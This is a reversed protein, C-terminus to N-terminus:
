PPLDTPVVRLIAHNLAGTPDGIVAVYARGRNLNGIQWVGSANSSGIAARALSPFARFLTVLAAVPVGDAQTVAGTLFSGVYGDGADEQLYQTIVAEVITTPLSM